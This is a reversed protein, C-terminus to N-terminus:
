NKVTLHFNQPVATGNQSVTIQYDDDALGAPVTVYFEYLGVFSGALGSYSLTAPTSGFSFTVPNVLQNSKSVVTGPLISPTVDGFGIGYAIIEDGPKAPRANLGFSAGLSTNLVYAGDSAFTAVLYQTDGSSYNTPALLGPALVQRPFM